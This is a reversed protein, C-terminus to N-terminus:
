RPSAVAPAPLPAPQLAAAAPGVDVAPELRLVSGSTCAATAFAVLLAAISHLGRGSKQRQRRVAPSSDANDTSAM